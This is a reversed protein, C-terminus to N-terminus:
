HRIVNGLISPDNDADNAIEKTVKNFEKPNTRRLEQLQDYTWARKERVEGGDRVDATTQSAARLNKRRELEGLADDVIAGTTGRNSTDGTANLQRTGDPSKYGRRKALEVAKLAPNGGLRRQAAVIRQRRWEWAGIACLDRAADMETLGKQSAHNLANQRGAPDSLLQMAAEDLEGSDELEKRYDNRLFEMHADYDPVQQRATAESAVGFSNLNEMEQQQRNRQAEKRDQERNWKMWGIPDENADPEADGVVAAPKTERTAGQQELKDLRATLQAITADRKRLSAYAANKERQERALADDKPDPTAAAGNTGEAAGTAADQNQEDAM